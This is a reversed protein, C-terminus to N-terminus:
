SSRLFNNSSLCVPSSGALLERLAIMHSNAVAVSHRRVVLILDGVNGGCCLKGSDTGGKPIQVKLYRVGGCRRVMDAQRRFGFEVDYKM